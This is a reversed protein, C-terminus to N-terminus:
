KAKRGLAAQKEWEARSMLYAPFEGYGPPYPEMRWFRFGLKKILGASRLNSPHHGIWIQDACYACDDSFLYGIVSEAAARAAGSGWFEPRLHFGMELTRGEDGHPRLGCCGVFEGSDSMFVPWYQIGYQKYCSRENEFRTLIEEPSMEGNASVCAAVRPDGWLQQAM